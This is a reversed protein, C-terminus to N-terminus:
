AQNNLLTLYSYSTKIIIIMVGYDFTGVPIAKLIAPKQCRLIIFQIDKVMEKDAKIWNSEYLADQINYTEDRLIQGAHCAAFVVIFYGCLHLMSAFSYQKIMQNAICGLIVAASFALHGVVLKTLRNLEDCLRFIEMHYRICFNFKRRRKFLDDENISEKFLQKLHYIKEQVMLVCELVMVAVVASPPLYLECSILLSATIVSKTWPDITATSWWLPTVADCIEHTGYRENSLECDKTDRFSIIGYLVVFFSTFWFCFKAIFNTISAVKDYNPPKGFRTKNTVDNFFKCWDNYNYQFASCVIISYGFGTIGEIDEARNVPEHDILSMTLHIWCEIYAFIGAIRVIYSRVAYSKWHNLDYASPYLQLWKLCKLTEHFM